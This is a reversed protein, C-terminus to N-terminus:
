SYSRRQLFLEQLVSPDIGPRDGLLQQMRCFLQTPMRDGLEEGTFLRCQELLATSQHAAGEISHLPQRSATQAPSRECLWAVTLSRHPRVQLHHPPLFEVQAFWLEPDAPWFPPLKLNVVSITTSTPPSDAIRLDAVRGGEAM